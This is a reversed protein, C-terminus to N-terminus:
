YESMRRKTTLTFIPMLLLGAIFGIVHASYAVGGVEETGLSAVTSFLQLVFWYGIFVLAPLNLRSLLIVFILIGKVTGKPHLALYGGLVGAIAGSAGILPTSTDPNLLIFGITAALGCLIYFLGYRLHGICDEINDGFPLLYLMNGVFHLLGAHLFMSTLLGIELPTSDTVESPIAAYENTFSTLAPIGLTAVIYVQYLYIAVCGIVIAINVFPFIRRKSKEVTGYPIFFIM